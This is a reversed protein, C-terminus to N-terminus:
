ASYKGKQPLFSTEIQYWAKRVVVNLKEEDSPAPIKAAKLFELSTAVDDIGYGFLIKFECERFPLGIKNKKCKAKIDVGITRTIGKITKKVQGANSLWLIQSAFFDMARGGSRTHKEGFTVGINDRVQSIIMVCVKSKEIKRALLRFLKGMQKPKTGGYSNEDFKREMEAKDSISDLSDVIYLGEGNRGVKEIFEILDAYLEEVTDCQAQEEEKLELGLAQAYDDDWAGEGEMYRKKGKPFQREFNAMAEIALLTKGTSKDGVVNAIRGLVWGGGLVLNLLECGSSIFKYNTKASAFYLGGETRNKLNLSLKKRILPNAM